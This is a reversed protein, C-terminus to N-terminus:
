LQSSKRFLVFVISQNNGECRIAKEIITSNGSITEDATQAIIEQIKREDEFIDVVSYGRSQLVQIITNMASEDNDIVLVNKKGQVLLNSVATLLQDIQLPKNLYYDVGIQYGRQRDNIISLMVLPIHMTAPDKKLIAALDFGNLEPMMVDLVVLSPQEKRIKELAEKGNSAESVGYGAEELEQRLLIRINEEDDVILIEKEQDLSSPIDKKIQPIFPKDKEQLVGDKIPLSFSFQSGQGFESTVWIKGRHMEVIQKCIPLGLGTGKPKDTLTNGVQKFKDFVKAQDELPIGIGTDIVSIVVYEGSNVIKCTVEGEPTFKVANSILNILVQILRDFDGKIIPLNPELEQVFSLKKETFLASTAAAAHNVLDLLAVPEMKMEMRGAELKALDLVDNILQTLRTSELLIININERVQSIGRKVKKDETTIQPLIVEELRKQIIKAFGLVSTLPTRLEHSVNSLFNSKMEDLEKLEKYAKELEATRIRVLEELNLNYQQIKDAMINFDRALQGFEDGNSIEVRAEYDGSAIERAKEQLNKLSFIIDKTVLFVFILAVFLSLGALLLAWIMQSRYHNIRMKLISNLEPVIKQWLVFSAKHAALTDNNLKVIEGPGLDEKKRMEQLLILIKKTESNFRILPIKLNPVLTPSSGYFNPDEIIAKEMSQNLRNINAQLLTTLSDLDLSDKSSLKGELSYKQLLLIISNLQDQIEPLTLLTVDMLYYSDLDPDLILNSNDGVHTIMIRIDKRLSDYFRLANDKDPTMSRLKNWKNWVELVSQQTRNRKKLGEPTFQLDRGLHQDVEWLQQFAQRTQEMANDLSGQFVSSQSLSVLQEEKMVGQLLGELSQQYYNGKIELQAFRIYGNIGNIMFVLLVALPLTFSLAITLLKVAISTNKLKELFLM